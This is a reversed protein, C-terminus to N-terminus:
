LKIRRSIENSFYYSVPWVIAGIFLNYALEYLFGSSRDLIFTRDAIVYFITTAMFLSILFGLHINWPGAKKSLWLIIAIFFVTLPALEWFPATKAFIVGTFAAIFFYAPNELRFALIALIVVILNPNIGGIELFRSEQALASGIVALTPFIFNLRM